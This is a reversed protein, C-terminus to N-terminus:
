PYTKGSDSGGKGSSAAPPSSRRSDRLAADEKKVQAGSREAVLAREVVKAYTTTRQPLTIRVDDAIRARM